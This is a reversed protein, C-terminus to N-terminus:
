KHNKEGYREPEHLMEKKRLKMHNSGGRDEDQPQESEKDGMAIESESGSEESSSGSDTENIMEVEQKKGMATGGMREPVKRLKRSSVIREFGTDTNRIVYTSPSLQKIIEHNIECCKLL